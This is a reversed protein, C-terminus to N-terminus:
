WVIFVDSFCNWTNPFYRKICGTSGNFTKPSNWVKNQPWKTQTFLAEIAVDDVWQDTLYEPWLTVPAYFSLYAVNSGLMRLTMEIVINISCMSWITYMQCVLWLFCSLFFNIVKSLSSKEAAQMYRSKVITGGALSINKEIFVFLSLPMERYLMICCDQWLMLRSDCCCLMPFYRCTTSKKGGGSTNNARSVNSAAKSSFFFYLCLQRQTKYDHTAM